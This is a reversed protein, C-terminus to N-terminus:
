RAFSRPSGGEYHANGRSARPRRRTRRGRGRGTRRPTTSASSSRRERRRTPHVRRRPRHLPRDRLRRARRPAEGRSSTAGRRARGQAHLLRRRREHHRLVRRLREEPSQVGASLRPAVQRRAGDSLGGDQAPSALTPHQRRFAPEASRGACSPENLGSPCACRTDGPSSRSARRAHLDGLHRVRADAQHRTSRSEDLIPTKYDPRGYCSLDGWGLDDALIFLINPNASSAPQQASAHYATSATIAASTALFERRTLM